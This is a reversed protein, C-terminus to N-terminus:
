WPRRPLPARKLRALRERDLHGAVLTALIAPQYASGPPPKPEGSRFLVNAFAELHRALRRPPMGLVNRCWVRLEPGPNRFVEGWWRWRRAL